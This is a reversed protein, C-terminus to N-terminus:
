CALLGPHACHYEQIASRHATRPQDDEFDIRVMISRMPPEVVAIRNTGIRASLSLHDRRAAARSTAKAYVSIGDRRVVVMRPRPYSTCTAEVASRVLSSVLNVAHNPTPQPWHILGCIFGVGIGGGCSHQCNSCV